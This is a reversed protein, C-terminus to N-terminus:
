IKKGDKCNIIQKKQDLVKGTFLGNFIIGKQVLEGDSNYQILQHIEHEKHIRFACKSSRYFRLPTECVLGTLKKFINPNLDYSNIGTTFENFKKDTIQVVCDIKSAVIIDDNMLTIANPAILCIIVLNINDDPTHGPIYGLQHNEFLCNM